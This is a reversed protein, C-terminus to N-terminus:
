SAYRGRAATKSDAAQRTQAQAHAAHIFQGVLEAFRYPRTIVGLHGTGPLVQHISGPILKLYRKSDRVPVVRDLGSEGTLILTPAVIQRCDAALDYRQWERVWNAMRKPELPANMLRRVHEKGLQIREPWSDRARKLEPLGRALARAGFYPLSLWPFRLCFEDDPRPKWSPDPTSALILSTVREPRRAAYRAAILGGFSVGIITAQREHANDLLQDIAHTWATFVGDRQMEPRLEQLSATIVRHGATMADVTPQMWEWRGQIGPVIVVPFGTGRTIM